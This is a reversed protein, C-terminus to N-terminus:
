APHPTATLAPASMPFWLSHPAVSRWTPVAVKQGGPILIMSDLSEGWVVPANPNTTSPPTNWSLVARVKVTKAGENVAHRSLHIPLVVNIEQGTAPLRGSDHVVASTTGVYQFGSGWDVWFAVYERSGATLHGGCYGISQKVTLVASLQSEDPDLEIRKLEEYETNSNTQLWARAVSCLDVDTIGAFWKAPDLAIVPSHVAATLSPALYRHQPVTTGDYLEHLEAPTLQKPKFTSDVLGELYNSNAAPYSHDDSGALEPNRRARSSSVRAASDISVVCTDIPSAM